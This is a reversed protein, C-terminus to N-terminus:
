AEPEDEKVKKAKEQLSARGAAAAEALSGFGFARLIAEQSPPLLQRGYWRPCCVAQGEQKPQQPVLGLREAWAVREQLRLPRAPELRVQGRGAQPHLGRSLRSRSAALSRADPGPCAGGLGGDARVKFQSAAGCLGCHLVPPPDPPQGPQGAAVEAVLLQHGRVVWPRTLGIDDPEDEESSEEPAAAKEYIIELEDREEATTDRLGKDALSAELGSSYSV